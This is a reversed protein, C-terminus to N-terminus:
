VGYRIKHYVRCSYYFIMTKLYSCGLASMMEKLYEDAKRYQELECLWDHMVVASLYEPSNPPFISWFLRPVNAGNTKFGKPVIIDKYVYESMLEFKDKEVPKLIPRNIKVM